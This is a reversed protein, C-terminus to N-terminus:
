GRELRARLRDPDDHVPRSESREQADALWASVSDSDLPIDDDDDAAAFFMQM